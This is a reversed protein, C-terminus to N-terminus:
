QKNEMINLVNQMFLLSPISHKIDAMRFIYNPSFTVYEFALHKSSKIHILSTQATQRRCYEIQIQNTNEIFRDFM